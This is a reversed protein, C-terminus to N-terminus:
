LPEIWINRFSVANGHDQLKIPGPEPGEKQGAGTKNELEVDRHVLVGNHWVTVRAKKVKEGGQFRAGHFVIDYSQWRGPPNCLNQDPARFRYLSACGNHKPEEGFSDIIQVEYRRQIYIGSNGKGSGSSNPSVQPIKFEAHLRFDQYNQKTILSGSKPVIQMAGDVRKWAIPKGNEMKWASFDSGDFLVTAKGTAKPRATVQPPHAFDQWVRETDEVDVKGQHVRLRYRFSHDVGPKLDIDAFQVPAWNFFIQGKPWIRMPEPHHLNQPHSFHTVGQWQGDVEGATDCWRARTAHGDKRTKGESTLYTANDDGWEVAGRYGFGGYRYKKLHLPTDAVCRQTSTFDCLWTGQQPGGVNYVRVDWIEKLVDKEGQPTQLAVHDHEIRFGGYVPGDTLSLFRNFRVTGQGKKLNWFDVEKGEFETKTWPMWLGVHHYHDDPHIHTLKSGTPSWLPHIFGSRQYLPSQGEPPPVIAHNYQLVPVTNQRLILTKENRDAVVRRPMNKKGAKLVFTRRTGPQTRGALIWWLRPPSGAELQAPIAKQQGDRDEILHYTDGAFGLPLGALSVSVPTDVREFYGAEVTFVAIAPNTDAWTISGLGVLLVCLFLLLFRDVISRQM